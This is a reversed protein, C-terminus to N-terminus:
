EVRVRYWARETDGTAAVAAANEPPTAALASSLVTFGAAGNTSQLLSYRRGAASPWEMRAEHGLIEIRLDLRSESDDPDTGAKYEAWTTMGDQDDDAGTVASTPSAHTAWEWWDPLGDGDADPDLLVLDLNTAAHAANFAPGTNTAAFPNFPYWAAPEMEDPADNTNADLWAKVWYSTGFALGALHYNTPADLQATAEGTWANSAAAAVVRVPGQQYGEYTVRGAAFDYRDLAGNYLVLEDLWGSFVSQAWYGRGVRLRYDASGFVSAVPLAPGLLAQNELGFALASPEHVQNVYFRIEGGAGAAPEGNPGGDPDYVIFLHYWTNTEIEFFPPSLGGASMWIRGASRAGWPQQSIQFVPASGDSVPRLECIVDGDDKNDARFWLGLTLGGALDLGPLLAEGWQNSEGALHLAAGSDWIAASRFGLVRNNTSADFANTGSGEDFPWLGALAPYFAPNSEFWSYWRLIAGFSPLALEPESIEEAPPSREVHYARLEPTPTMGGPPLLLALTATAPLGSEWVTFETCQPMPYADCFRRQEPISFIDPLHSDFVEIQYDVQWPAPFPGYTPIGPVQDWGFRDVWALSEADLAQRTNHQGLGTAWARGLPNCGLLYDATLSIADLFDANNTLAYAWIVNLVRGPTTNQGYAEVLDSRACSRYAEFSSSTPSTGGSILAYNVAQQGHQLIMATVNSVLAPDTVEPPARVYALLPADEFGDGSQYSFGILGSYAWDGSFNVYYPDNSDPNRIHALRKELEGQYNTGGTTKLLHCEATMLWGSDAANSVAYRYAWEARDLYDAAAAADHNTLLRAAQAFLGAVYASVNRDRRFTWYPLTDEHAFIHSPPHGYSEVGARVGGDSEQLDRWAQLQWLAEDLLDPLGNGSEPIDLQGDAFRDPWYECLSMLASAIQAHGPRLDFDGADHHGGRIVRAGNTTPTDAAFFGPPEGDALFVNTHGAPQPWSTCNTTLECNWRQHYFGRAFTYFCEFVKATSVGFAYSRGVGPLRLYYEDEAALGSLDIEMVREGSFENYADGRLVPTLTDVLADDGTRRVEVVGHDTYDVTGTTIGDGLWFGGGAWYGLYAYRRGAQPAYGEQNVKLGPCIENTAYFVFEHAGQYHTFRYTAGEVLNSALQLYFTYETRTYGHYHMSPFAWVGRAIVPVPSFGAGSDVEVLVPNTAMVEHDVEDPFVLGVLDCDVVVHGNAPVPGAYPALAMNDFWLEYPVGNPEPFGSGLPAADEGTTRGFVISRAQRQWGALGARFDAIPIAVEHWGGDFLDGDAYPTVDLWLTTHYGEGDHYGLRIMPNPPSAAGLDDARAAFTLADYGDLPTNSELTFTPSGSTDPNVFCTESGDYLPPATDTQSAAGDTSAFLHNTTGDYLVRPPRSGRATTVLLLGM